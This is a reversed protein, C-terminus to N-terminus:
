FVPGINEGRKLASRESALGKYVRIRKVLDCKPTDDVGFM